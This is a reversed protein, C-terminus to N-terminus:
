KQVNFNFQILFPYEEDEPNVEVAKRLESLSQNMDGKLYYYLSEVLFENGALYRDMLQFDDINYFVNHINCRNEAMYALNNTLNDEDFCDMSFFETYSLNDTNIQIDDPFNQITKDDMMVCVAFHYPDIYFFKEQPIKAVNEQWKRFDIKLPRTSGLLIAHYQGLWVTSNPFVTHFTKIIGLFDELRLKHLPLYQSVLGGDNLHQKCLEFYDQTYLNGSGLVPHTPDCSILDYKKSTKQLFHRGDGSIMQVRPDDIVDNNLESYFPAAEKLGPVMEVCDIEKVEQHQAIASTTVGMGFGVILAKECELGAFFPIHGIMKVAKVADYTSGIVASNNVFSVRIFAGPTKEQAVVLTGEVTENYFLIDRESKKFSPPLIQIEGWFLIFALIVLAVAGLGIQKRRAKFVYIVVISLVVILMLISKVVGLLPILQFAALLPGLVAGLTNCMLVFGVNKSVHKADSSYIRCALPFIFGSVISPPLVVLLSAIAPIVILRIFPLENLSGFPFMMLEPLKILIFMGVFAFVGMFILANTLLKIHNKFQDGHKKYIWSGVFLGFIVMSTILAFTYSTNTLYIKFIRIWIVQLGLIFLGSIFTAALAAKQYKKSPKGPKEELLTDTHKKLTKSDGIKRFFFIFLALLINIAVALLVTNKQGINGLLIFGATLGGLTSGLTEIAYIRGLDSSFHVNSRIIIKSVVPIVGGMLFAPIFLLFLALSFVLGDTFAIESGSFTDYLAPLFSIIMFYNLLSLIGVGLLLFALLRATEKFSAAFKGWYFAGMGFGAMFSMLVLTSASVTAGLLLSLMRNWSVEYVLFSFGAFFIVLHIFYFESKSQLKSM